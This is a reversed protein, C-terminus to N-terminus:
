QFLKRYRKGLGSAPIIVRTNWTLGVECIIEAKETSIGTINQTEMRLSRNGFNDMPESYCIIVQLILKETISFVM